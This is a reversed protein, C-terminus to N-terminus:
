MGALAQRMVNAADEGVAAPTIARYFASAESRRQEVIQDFDNYSTDIAANLRLRIVATGGADITTHCHAAAKTGINNPNIAGQRGSVVFDNIGDKVYPSANATGFLRQNNRNGSLWHRDARVVFATSLSCSSNLRRIFVCVTSGEASVAAM